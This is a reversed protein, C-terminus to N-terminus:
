KGVAVVLEETSKELTLPNEWLFVIEQCTAEYVFVERENTWVVWRVAHDVKAPRLPFISEVTDPIDEPSIDADKTVPRCAYIFIRMLFAMSDEDALTRVKENFPMDGGKQENTRKYLAIRILRVGLM